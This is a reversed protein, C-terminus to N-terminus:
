TAIRLERKVVGILNVSTKGILVEHPNWFSGIDRTETDLSMSNMELEIISLSGDPLVVVLAAEGTSLNGFKSM